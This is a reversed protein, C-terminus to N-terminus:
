FEFVEFVACLKNLGKGRLWNAVFACDKGRFDELVANGMIAWWALSKVYFRPLLEFEGGGPLSQDDFERRGPVPFTDFARPIGPPDHQLKWKVSVYYGSNMLWINSVKVKSDHLVVVTYLPLFCFLIYKNLITQFRLKTGVEYHQIHTMWTMVSGAPSVVLVKRIGKTM